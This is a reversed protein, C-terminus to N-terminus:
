LGIVNSDVIILQKKTHIMESIIPDTIRNAVSRYLAIRRSYIELKKGLDDHVNDLEALIKNDQRLLEEFISPKREDSM